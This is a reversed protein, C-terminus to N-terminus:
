PRVPEPTPYVTRGGVDFSGLLAVLTASRLALNM